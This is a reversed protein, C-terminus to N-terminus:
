LRTLTDPNQRPLMRDLLYDRRIAVHWATGVIHLGVLLYVAWQGALHLDEFLEHLDHNKEFGPIAFLYFFQIPNGNYASLLYGTVPMFVFIAYLLWHSIKSILALGRPETTEAPAPNIARWLIRIAVLAFIMLGVSKHFQFIVPKWASDRPLATAVWALPLVAVVLLSTLWHLAQATATYRPIMPTTEPTVMLTRDPTAHM